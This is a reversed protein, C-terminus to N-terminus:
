DGRTCRWALAASSMPVAVLGSEGQAMIHRGTCVALAERGNVVCLVIDGSQAFTPKIRPGLKSDALSTLGGSSRMIDAAQTPTSYTGRLDNAPDDGTVAQVADAAWLACDHKGWEFPVEMRRAILAALASQWHHIRSMAAWVICVAM